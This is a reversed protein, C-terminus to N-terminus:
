SNDKSCSLPPVLYDVAVFSRRLGLDLRLGGGGFWQSINCHPGIRRLVEEFMHNKVEGAEGESLHASGNSEGCINRWAVKVM